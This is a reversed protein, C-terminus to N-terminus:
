GAGGPSASVTGAPAPPLPPPSVAPLRELIAAGEEAPGGDEGAVGGPVPVRTLELRRPAPGPTALVRLHCRWGERPQPHDRRFHGGRSEERALAPIALLRAVTLLNRDANALGRDGASAAARDELHDLEELAERLGAGDRVLGVRRWLLRRVARRLEADGAADTPLRTAPTLLHRWPVAAPPASLPTSAGRPRALLARAVRGGFVLAELLSNSALRNAGHVGTSAVEGCAWLGPLSTVGDGDTAIGGMHYHAAPTVPIPEYRPDLGRERCARWVTPFREPFSEGVARRADLFVRHGAERRGHIARAVVDRPALEADPHLAPLFRHGTEDVLVAGEGRLAETLLPLREGEGAQDVALATPHFQVLELDQLTVGARAALALGDGRVTAPNTTALFAGGLGGTALVVAEALVLFPRGGGDVALVGAARHGGDGAARPARPLLLLDTVTVGGAVRVTLTAAVAARLARMLEAGTADGQAHVIRRRGHAAERGLALGGERRDFRAGLEVLAAIAVPGGAALTGAREGHVLGAGAALTDAAHLHPSDDEGLAAAIGGQAWASSGDRGAEGATLVLCPRPAVGLAVTLGAAGSGVVLVGTRRVPLAAPDDGLLTTLSMLGNM